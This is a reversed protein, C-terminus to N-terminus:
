VDFDVFRKNRGFGYIETMAMTMRLEVGNM